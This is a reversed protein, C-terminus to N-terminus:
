ARGRCILWRNHSLPRVEKFFSQQEVVEPVYGHSALIQKCEEEVDQGHVEIILSPKRNALIERAGILAKNEAGEIDMKIFDPVFTRAAVKDLTMTGDNDHDSVFTEVTTIQYSNRAFTARMEDAAEKECEFSMVRGGSLKGLLLAYYGGQGGVDFSNYGSRVLSKFHSWLEREYLGLYLRFAHNFDIKMVCGSAPGVPLRRFVKGKPVVANKGVRMLQLLSNM